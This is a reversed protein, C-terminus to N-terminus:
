YLVRVVDAIHKATANPYSKVADNFHLEIMSNVDNPNNGWKLLYTKVNELM